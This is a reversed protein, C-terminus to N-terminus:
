KFQSYVEHGVMWKIMKNTRELWIREGSLNKRLVQWEPTLCLVPLENTAQSGSMPECRMLMWYGLTLLSSNWGIICGTLGSYHIHCTWRLSPSECWWPWFPTLHESRLARSNKLLWVACYLTCQCSPDARPPVLDDLATVPTRRLETFPQIYIVHLFHHELVTNNCHSTSNTM